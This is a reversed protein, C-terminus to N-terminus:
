RVPLLWVTPGYDDEENTVSVEFRLGPLESNIRRKWRHVLDEGIRFLVAEDEVTTVEDYLHVHSLAATVEDPAGASELWEDLNVTRRMASRPAVAGGYEVFVVNRLDALRVGDAVAEIGLSREPAVELISASPVGEHAMVATNGVVVALWRMFAHLCDLGAADGLVDGPVDFDVEAQDFYHANFQVPGVWVKLLHAHHQPFVSASAPLQGRPEGDVSYEWALGSELVRQHVMDWGAEAAFRATIDPLTGQAGVLEEALAALTWDTPSLHIPFDSM